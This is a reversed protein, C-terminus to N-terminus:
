NKNPASNPTPNLSCEKSVSWKLERLEKVIAQRIQRFRLKAYQRSWRFTPDVLCGERLQNRFTEQEGKLLGRFAANSAAEACNRRADRVWAWSEPQPLYRLSMDIARHVDAINAGSKILRSTDSGEYLRYCALVAPEYVVPQYLAARRWLDWDAAHVLAPHFGGVAEVLSRKLVVAAFQAWNLTAITPLANSYIGAARQRLATLGTWLGDEDMHAFRCHGSGVGPNREILEEMRAYFDPLVLDDGHLIHILHGRSRSLCTNFNATAGVNTRHRLFTVRGRALERVVAEPDDKTSADDIVEIQMRETGPDQALVSRLTERLLTACNYAPIM